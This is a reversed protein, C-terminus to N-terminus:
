SQARKGLNGERKVRMRVHTEGSSRQHIHLLFLVPEVTASVGRHTNWLNEINCSPPMALWCCSCVPLHPRCAM